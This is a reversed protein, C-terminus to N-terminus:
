AGHMHGHVFCAGSCRPKCLVNPAADGFCTCAGSGSCRPKCLANRLKLEMGLFPVHVPLVLPLVDIDRNIIVNTCYMRLQMGSVPVPIDRNLCCVRLGMVLVPVSFPM